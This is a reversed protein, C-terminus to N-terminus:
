AAAPAVVSKVNSPQATLIEADFGEGVAVRILAGSKPNAPDAAKVGTIVGTLERRTEGRGFDFVVIAGPVLSEFSVKEGKLIIAARKATLAAIRTDIALIKDAVSKSM